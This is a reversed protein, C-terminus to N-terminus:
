RKKTKIYKKLKYVLPPPIRLDLDETPINHPIRRTNISEFFNIYLM